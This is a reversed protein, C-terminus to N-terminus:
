PGQLFPPDAAFTLGTTQHLFFLADFHDTIPATLISEHPASSSFRSAISWTGQPARFWQAVPGQDPLRQLDLAFCPEGLSALAQDLTGAQDPTVHFLRSNLESGDQELAHFEGGAFLVGFARYDQGYTQALYWGLAPYGSRGTAARTVHGNHASILVRARLGEEHLIWHMNEAMFRERARAGELRDPTMEVFQRLLRLCRRYREAQRPEVATARAARGELKDLAARWAQLQEPAPLPGTRCSTTPLKGLERKLFAAEGPRTRGLHRLAWRYAPGPEDLDFGYFHISRPRVPDQALTRLWRILGRFEETQLSGPLQAWPEPGGDRIFEDLFFGAAQNIEMAFTTVEPCGELIRQKLRFMQHTGHCAEGMGILRASGFMAAIAEHAEFAGQPEWTALPVAHDRIFHKVARPAWSPAPLLKSRLTQRPGTVEVWGDTGWERPHHIMFRYRGAPVALRFQGRRAKAMLVQHYMPQFEPSIPLLIVTADVRQGSAGEIRGELQCAGPELQIPSALTRRTGAELRLRERHGHGQDPDTVSVSYSGPGLRLRFRGQANTTSWAVRDLSAGMQEPDSVFVAVQAKAVPRGDANVVQGELTGARWSCGTCGALLLLSALWVGM